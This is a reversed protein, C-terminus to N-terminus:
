AKGGFSVYDNLEGFEFWTKVDERTVIERKAAQQKTGAIAGVGLEAVFKGLTELGRSNSVVITRGANILYRGIKAMVNGAGIFGVKMASM